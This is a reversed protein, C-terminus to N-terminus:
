PALAGEVTLRCSTYRQNCFNHINNNRYDRNYPGIIVFTEVVVNLLVTVMILMSSPNLSLMGNLVSIRKFEMNVKLFM